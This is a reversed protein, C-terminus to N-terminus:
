VGFEGTAYSRYFFIHFKANRNGDASVSRSRVIAEVEEPSYKPIGPVFIDPRAQAHLDHIQMLLDMIKPIDKKAAKRITM